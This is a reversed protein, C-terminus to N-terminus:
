RFAKRTRQIEKRPVTKRRVKQVKPPQNAAATQTGRTDGDRGQMALKMAIRLTLSDTEMLLRERIRPISTKEIIQDRIMDDQLDGIYM